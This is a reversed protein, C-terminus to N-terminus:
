EFLKMLTIAYVEHGEVSGQNTEMKRIFREPKVPSNLPQAEACALFKDAYPQRARFTTRM